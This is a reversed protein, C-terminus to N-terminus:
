LSKHKKLPWNPWPSERDIYNLMEIVVDDNSAESLPKLIKLLGRREWKQICAEIRPWDYAGFEGLDQKSYRRTGDDLFRNISEKLAFANLGCRM